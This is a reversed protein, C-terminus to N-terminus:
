DELSAVRTRNGDDARVAFPWTLGMLRGPRQSRRWKKEIKRAQRTGSAKKGHEKLAKGLAQAIAQDRDQTAHQYILAARTSSHGMRTMLKRLSADTSAALTNRAHRLDHLHLDPLKVTIQVKNWIRRFASRRLRGGKPGRAARATQPGNERATRWEPRLRSASGEEM